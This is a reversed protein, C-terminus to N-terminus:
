SSLCSFFDCRQLGCVLFFLSSLPSLFFKLFKFFIFNAFLLFTEVKAIGFRVPFFLPPFAFFNFAIKLWVFDFFNAKYHPLVYIFGLRSPSPFLEKLFYFIMYRLLSPLCPLRLAFWCSYNSYSLSLPSRHFSIYYYV